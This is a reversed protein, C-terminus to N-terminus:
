KAASVKVIEKLHKSIDTNEYMGSFLDANVGVSSTAVPLATHAGSTWGVGCKNNFIGYVVSVFKDGRKQKAADEISKVESSSLVLQRLVGQDIKLNDQRVKDRLAALGADRKDPFVLGFNDTVAQKLADNLVGEGKMERFIPDIRGRIVDRSGKQFGLLEIYSSYGTNAFGLTLGGTEHDGTILLLSEDAHKRVFDYAVKVAEDLGMTEFLSSAADNSHGHSDIMGGEVMMFFPKNKAYLFDIAQKTYDAITLDNKKDIDIAYPLQGGHGYALIKDAKKLDIAEIEKKGHAVTYGAEKALDYIDRNNGGFGGGRNNNVGGGGFYDFGSKVLDQGIAYYNDRNDNHAYFSAPTAHNITISSLIGVAFGNKKALEAVSEVRQKKPDVGIYHNNTKVGTAIATGSAASDTIFSDASSTKTYGMFPLENITLGKGFLKNSYSDALMRQPLSMGDGIMLIIYKVPKYQPNAKDQAFSSAPILVAAAMVAVAAFKAFSKM